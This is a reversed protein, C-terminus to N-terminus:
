FLANHSISTSRETELKFIEQNSEGHFNQSQQALFAAKDFLDEVIKTNIQDAAAFGMFGEPTFVQIGIGELNGSSIEETKGNNIHVALDKRSQLRLIFYLGKGAGLNRALDIVQDYDVRM